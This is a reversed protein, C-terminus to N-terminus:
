LQERAPHGHYYVPEPRDPRSAPPSNTGDFSDSTSPYNLVYSKTIGFPNVSVGGSTTGSVDVGGESAAATADIAAPSAAGCPPTRAPRAIYGDEARGATLLLAYILANVVLVSRWM